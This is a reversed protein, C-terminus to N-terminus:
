IEIERLVEMEMRGRTSIFGTQWLERVLDGRRFRYNNNNIYQHGEQRAMDNITPLHIPPLTTCITILVEVSLLEKVRM